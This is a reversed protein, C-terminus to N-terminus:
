KWDNQEIVTKRLDKHLCKNFFIKCLQLSKVIVTYHLIYHWLYDTMDLYKKLQTLTWSFELNIIIMLKVESMTLDLIDVQQSLLQMSSYNLFFKESLFCIDKSVLIFFVSQLYQLHEILIISFIMINDVYICFYSCHLWLIKDTMCQVYISTNQYKMVAIKFTKQSQHFIVIFHHHHESNVCWQYFYVNCNM